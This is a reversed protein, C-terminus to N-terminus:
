ISGYKENEVRKCLEREVQNQLRTSLMGYFKPYGNASFKNFFALGDSIGEKICFM